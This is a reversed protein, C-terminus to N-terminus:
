PSRFICREEMRSVIWLISEITRGRETRLGFHLGCWSSAATRGAALWERRHIHVLCTGLGLTFNKKHVSTPRFSQDGRDLTAQM